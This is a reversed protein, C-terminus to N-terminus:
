PGRLRTRIVLGLYFVAAVAAAGASMRFVAAGGLAEMLRGGALSGAMSGLATAGQAVTQVTTRARAPARVQVYRVLALYWLGFTVAHLAQTALISAQETVAALLAFRLTATVGAVFLYIEGTRGELLRPAVLMLGVECMVGVMWAVGVFGDSHGLAEMHLGFYVDYAGHALYYFASGVFLAIMRPQLVFQMAEALVKDQKELPPTELGTTSLASLVHAVAALGLMLAPHAPGELQGVGVAFGAFGLSGFIRIRAFHHAREGLAAHAASDALPVIPARFFSYLAMAGLAGWFGGAPLFALAGLACGVGATRLLALRARWADAVWGFLPPVLLGSLPALLMIWGVETPSLGRAKFLIPLFPMVAGIGGFTFFYFASLARTM